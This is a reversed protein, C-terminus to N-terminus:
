ELEEVLQRLHDIRELPDTLEALRQKDQNDLPLLETLRWGVERSDEYDVEMGLDKVVPHKLLAQLVSLLEDEGGPMPTAKEDVLWEVDGMFLGDDAQWHKVVFAKSVGEVTIGLMGSELPKFDIVRVYTGIDYFDEEGRRQDDDRLLVVVFGRDEKLCSSLMDLYRPEFLQLPIRGKPLVISNLPFLPVKM